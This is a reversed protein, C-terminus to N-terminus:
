TARALTQRLSTAAVWCDPWRARLQRAAREAEGASAYLGFVTPGSGSMRALACGATAAISARIDAIAPMLASAPPELDNRTAALWAALAAIDAFGDPLAPLPPNDPHDLSAFVDRTALARRPNVLVLHAEPFNRLPSVIEGAGSVEAPLAALCVPVDAGLRAAVERLRPEDPAIRATRALARLMAAADASGGGLGAAVPLRKDLRIALGDEIAGPWEARFAALARRVLNSADTALGPAFEGTIELRDTEAPAVSLFDGLAAFVVLSHIAHMADDRRATVHLALNIKAPASEEVGGQM